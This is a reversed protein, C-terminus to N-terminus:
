SKPLLSGSVREAPDSVGALAEVEVLCSYFTAGAGIDTLTESTLANISKGDPSLRAWNVLAAVVGPQVAGNVRARLRVEGRDNFVRVWDGDGIGRPVADSMHIELLDPQELEQMAKVNCFSSNLFNDAKRALLELPFKRSKEAHRTEAPPEFSAVPDLRAAALGASYLEAKGSPTFFGGEAFPLFPGDGLKLRVHGEQELRERTIGERWCRPHPKALAQDIMDDVTQRFCDEPFDMRLALERFLDTNSKAEGLPAIAQNSMGLYYHGYSKQLDKHEFFTTAPLLLDAYATTDTFFQEHVVTFLD